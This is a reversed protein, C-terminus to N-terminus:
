WVVIPNDDRKARKPDGDSWAISTANVKDIAPDRINPYPNVVQGDYDTDLSFHLLQREKTSPDIWHDRFGEEKEKEDMELYTRKLRNKDPNVLSELNAYSAALKQGGGKDFPFKHMDVLYLNWAGSVNRCTERAQARWAKNRATGLGATLAASLVALILLVAIMEVLTFGSNRM